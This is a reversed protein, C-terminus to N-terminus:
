VWSLGFGKAKMFGLKKGWAEVERLRKLIILLLIVWLLFAKPLM